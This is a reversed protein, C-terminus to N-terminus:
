GAGATRVPVWATATFRAGDEQESRRVDIWGGVSHLRRRMGELGQGGAAVAGIPQTEGPDAPDVPDEVNSVEIRLNGQWGGDPWHREVLVPQDRRGHKIANTLMEQLVRYAVVELDPPLPQPTGVEATVVEHGSARVGEILSDLGGPTAIPRPTASLVQRVDQLSSRASTAITSMTQKLAEPDDDPLYQASEAQALIVALSHGVVDHVDRAMRAQEDRLRAIELAQESGRQARAADEEAAVQSIESRRAQAMFRLTLGALWPVGLLAMGIVVAGIYWSDSFRYARVLEEYGGPAGFGRYISGTLVGLVGILASAPISLASLVVTMTSGWRATGFAVVAIAAEAYLLPASSVVQLACVVWVIALALGPARRSLGGAAAIGVSVVVYWGDVAGSTTATEVLGLVLIGGAVALDPLWDRWAPVADGSAGETM